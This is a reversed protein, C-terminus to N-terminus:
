SQAQLNLSTLSVGLQSGKAVAERKRELFREPTGGAERAAPTAWGTLRAAGVLKLCKEDHKGNRYSYASAKTDNVTPSPWSTSGSASTRPVSARLACIPRGAPTVREKWTLSFLISGSSATLARLRSELSSQLVASGSSASGNRGSTGLTTSGKQRGAKSFPQCPCSGTWVPRDDPWGAQRLAYSWVGIGAFFHAQVFNEVNEPKLKVISRDTVHGRPIHGADILNQLWQAAFPDIENYINM